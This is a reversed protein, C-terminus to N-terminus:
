LNLTQVMQKITWIDDKAVQKTGNKTTYEIRDNGANYNITTHSTPSGLHTTLKFM